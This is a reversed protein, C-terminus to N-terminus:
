EGLRNLLSASGRLLEQAVETKSGAQAARLLDGPAAAPQNAGRVLIADAPLAAVQERVPPVYVIREAVKHSRASLWVGITTIGFIALGGYLLWYLLQMNDYQSRLRYHLFVVVVAISLFPVFAGVGSALKTSAIKGLYGLRRKTRNDM